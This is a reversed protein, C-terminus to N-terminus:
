PSRGPGPTKSEQLAPLRNEPVAEREVRYLQVYSGRYLPSLAPHSQVAAPPDILLVYDFDRQWSQLYRARQLAEPSLEQFLWQWEAPESLPQAIRDFPPRVQLPQQAPDAFILPYFAKRESVLLAALHGDLRYIGPLSRHEPEAGMVHGPRGRAAVVRSGPEVQAIASRLQALDARHDIWDAGVQASRLAILCGVVLGAFCAERTSFHPQVGAFLLLGMMLAFRLDVFTGGKMHSPAVVFAVALVALALLSGPAFELKRRFLVILSVVIVGTVLTLEANTTMFPAGIRWLKAWGRWEGISASGAQLPSFLYLVLAPSLAAMGTFATVLVDRLALSGARFRKWLLGGEYTAILLAFFVVGFVHCFFLVAAAAGGCIAQVLPAHRNRLAIWMAGALLALGLALLFNMFGLFFAGNYALLGSALPWWGWQGFAARHYAVAGIVPAFLTAALLLRGGVHLDTIRLLAAGAIDMGLNPLIGWQTAYMRSTFPDDPHALLYYRALHNPYDLLPPVDVLLLPVALVAALLGAALFWRWDWGNRDPWREGADPFRQLAPANM